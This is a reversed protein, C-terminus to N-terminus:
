QPQSTETIQQKLNDVHLQTLAESLLNTTDKTMTQYKSHMNAPPPPQSKYIQVRAIEDDLENSGYKPSEMSTVVSVNQSKHNMPYSDMIERQQLSGNCPVYVLSTTANAATFYNLPSANLNLSAQGSACIIPLSNPKPPMNGIIPVLYLPSPQNPHHYVLHQLPRPPPPVPQYVLQHCSPQFHAAAQVFQLHPREVVVQNFQPFSSTGMNDVNTNINAMVGSSPMSTSEVEISSEAASLRAEEVPDHYQYSIINQQPSVISSVSNESFCFM